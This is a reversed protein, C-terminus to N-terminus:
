NRKPPRGGTESLEALADSLDIGKGASSWERADCASCSRMVLPADGTAIEIEIMPGGCEPCRRENM